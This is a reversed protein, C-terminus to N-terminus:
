KLCKFYEFPELCDKCRFQAKCATSGFQSVMHTNTSNCQPCEVKPPKGFLISKDLEESPPAIGYEKLKVRGKESIWDTTWAPALVTKVEYDQIGKSDLMKEIDEEMVRMAPCGSYTPTITVQVKEDILEVDRVVGLDVLTLVPIEPDFVEELFHWIEGKSYKM